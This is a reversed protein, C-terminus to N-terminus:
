DLLVMEFCVSLSVYRGEQARRAFPLTDALWDYSTMIAKNNYQQEKKSSTLYESKALKLSIKIEINVARSIQYSGTAQTSYAPASLWCLTTKWTSQHVLCGRAAMFCCAAVHQMSM